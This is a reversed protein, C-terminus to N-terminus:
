CVTYESQELSNQLQKEVQRLLGIQLAFDIGHEIALVQVQCFIARHQM